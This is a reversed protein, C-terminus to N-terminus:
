ATPPHEEPGFLDAIALQFGPLVPEADLIDARGFLRLEAPSRYAHVEELAPYILWVLRVGAAFYERVKLLLDEALNSPSVVEVALDPVVPWAEVRGLRRHKPWREFSVFALDPRRKRNVAPRLDFLVENVVFGLDGTTAVLLLQGLLWSAMIGEPAGMPPVEVRNGDIEEYLADDGIAAPGLAPSPSELLGTLM